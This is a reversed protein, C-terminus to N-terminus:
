HDDDPPLKNPDCYDLGAAPGFPGIVVERDFPRGLNVGDAAIEITFEQGPGLREGFIRVPRRVVFIPAYPTCMFHGIRMGNPKLAYDIDGREFAGDIQRQIDLTCKPDPDYRWMDNIARIAERDNKLRNRQAPDTMCWPDFGDGPRANATIGGSPAERSTGGSGARGKDLNDILTPMALLQGLLYFSEIAVQAHREINEHLEQSVNPGMLGKAYDAKAKAEAMLQRLRQLQKEKEPPTGTGEFVALAAGAHSHIVDLAQMMAILHPYPCLEQEEWEPLSAPIPLDCKFHPNSEAQRARNLWGEVSSYFSQAQKATIPPVYGRTLPDHQYDADLFTDGLTQLVFANWTALVQLQQCYEESWPTKGELRMDDRLRESSVILEYVCSGARRYAELTKTNVEGKMVAVLRGWM